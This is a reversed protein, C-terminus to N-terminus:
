LNNRNLLQNKTHLKKKNVLSQVKKRKCDIKNIKNEICLSLSPKKKLYIQFLKNLINFFKINIKKTSYM